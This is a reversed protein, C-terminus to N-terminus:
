RGITSFLRMLNFQTAIVETAAGLALDSRNTINPLEELPVLTFDSHESQDIQQAKSPQWIGSAAKLGYVLDVVSEVDDEIIGFFKPAATIDGDSLGLEEDLEQLVQRSPDILDTAQNIQREVGGSPVFEWFNRDQELESSRRGLIIQNACLIVGTVALVRISLADRLRASRRQAYFRRYTTWNGEILDSSLRTVNFISGDFPPREAYQLANAWIEDVESALEEDLPPADGHGIVSPSKSLTRYRLRAM